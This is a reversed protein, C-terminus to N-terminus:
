ALAERAFMKRWAVASWQRVRSDIAYLVAPYVLCAITCKAALNLAPVGFDTAAAAIWSFTAAVSYRALAWGSIRLPLLKFSSRVLLLTCVLYAILTAWAAAQLGVKPLLVWNLALNLAASWALIAAMRGTQKHILLGANLFVQATYILLGAVLTPILQEAGSYRSSALLTVADRAGAAALALILGAAICFGDLSQSLFQITKERGGANWLKMYLPLIALGLPVML